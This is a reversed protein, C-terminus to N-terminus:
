KPELKCKRVNLMKQTHKNVIKFDEKYLMVESIKDMKPNPQQGRIMNYFNMYQPHSGKTLYIKQLYKRVIQVPRKM